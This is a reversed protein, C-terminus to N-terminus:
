VAVPAPAAAAPVLPKVPEEEKPDIITIADLTLISNIGPIPAKPGNKGTPDWEQM